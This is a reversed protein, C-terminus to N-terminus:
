GLAPRPSTAAAAPATTLRCHGSEVDVTGTNNFVVASDLTTTGTTARNASRASTTSFQKGAM